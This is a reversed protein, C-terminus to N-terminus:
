SPITQLFRILAHAVTSDYAGENRILEAAAEIPPFGKRQPTDAVMASYTDAVAVIRGLHGIRGGSLRNPYGSGNLREHHQIAPETVEPSVLDLRALIELSKQPHAQVTRLELPTLQQRKGIMLHSVKTMGIDYLFFGLAVQMLMEETIEAKHLEIFVALAMLSANVRRKSPSLDAHVDQVIRGMREPEEALKVCLAKLGRQLAVLEETMPHDFLADQCRKLENIFLGAMEDWTLNPDELAVGMDCSVMATYAEIQNRSFFLLGDESISRLQQRFSSGVEDGARYVPALSGTEENYRYLDVPFAGTPFCDFATIDVENYDETNAM